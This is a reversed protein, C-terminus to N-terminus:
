DCFARINLGVIRNSGPSVNITTILTCLVSVRLASFVARRIPEMVQWGPDNAGRLRHPETRGIPGCDYNM